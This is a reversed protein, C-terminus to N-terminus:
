ILVDEYLDSRRKSLELIARKILREIEDSLEEKGNEIRSLRSQHLGCKVAVSWQDLDRSLRLMKLSKGTM